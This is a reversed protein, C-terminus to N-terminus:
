ANKAGRSASKSRHNGGGRPPSGDDLYRGLARWRSFAYRIAAATDSKRSLGTLTKNFWRHLDDVLPRARAQRIDRRFSAAKGRIERETDYLKGIRQIAESAIASGHAVHIDYFRRRVHAWCAAEVIRGGEYLHHFGAYGEAQLVGALCEGDSSEL